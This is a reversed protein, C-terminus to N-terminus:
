RGGDDGGCEAEGDDIEDEEDGEEDSNNDGEDDAAKEERAQVVIRLWEALELWKRQSRKVLTAMGYAFLLQHAMSYIEVQFSSPEFFDQASVASAAPVVKVLVDSGVLDRATIEWSPVPIAVDVTPRKREEEVGENLRQEIIALLPEATCVKYKGQAPPRM